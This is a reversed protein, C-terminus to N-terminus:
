GADSPNGVYSDKFVNKMINDAFAYIQKRFLLAICMLAAIIMIIEVTGMGDEEYYFKKLLNM